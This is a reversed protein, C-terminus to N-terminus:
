KTTPNAGPIPPVGGNAGSDMSGKVKGDVMDGEMQMSSSVETHMMSEQGAPTITVSASTDQQTPPMIQLTATSTKTEPQAPTVAAQQQCGFLAAMSLTAVGAILMKGKM